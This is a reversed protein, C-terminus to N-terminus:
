VSIEEGLAFTADRAHIEFQAIHRQLVILEATECPSRFQKVAVSAIEGVRICTEGARWRRHGAIFEACADAREASVSVHVVFPAALPARASQETVHLARCIM